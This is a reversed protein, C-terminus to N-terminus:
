TQFITVFNSFTIVVYVYRDRYFEFLLFDSCKEWKYKPIVIEIPFDFTLDGEASIKWAHDVWKEFSDGLTIKLLLAFGRCTLTLNVPEDDSSILQM